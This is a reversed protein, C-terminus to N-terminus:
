IKICSNGNRLSSNQNVLLKANNKTEGRISTPSIVPQLKESSLPCNLNPSNIIQFVKSVKQTTSLNHGPAASM